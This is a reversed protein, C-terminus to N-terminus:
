SLERGGVQEVANTFLLSLMGFAAKGGDLNFLAVIDWFDDEASEKIHVHAEKDFLRIGLALDQATELLPVACGLRYRYAASSM